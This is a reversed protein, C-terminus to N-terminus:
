YTRSGTARGWHFISQGHETTRGKSCQFQNERRNWAGSAASSWPSDKSIRRALPM